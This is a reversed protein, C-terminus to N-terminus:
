CSDKLDPLLVCDGTVIEYKPWFKQLWSYNERERESVHRSKGNLLSRTWGRKGCSCAYCRACSESKYLKRDVGGCLRIWGSPQGDHIDCGRNLAQTVSYLTGGVRCWWGNQKMWLVGAVM